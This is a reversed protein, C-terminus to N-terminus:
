RPMEQLTDLFRDVEGGSNYHVLSVRVGGTKESLGLARFLRPCYVHGDKVIIREKALHRSVKAPELGKINFCLTPTRLAAHDPDTFGQVEIFPLARLRRLLYGTLSREYQRVAHMGRRMDGRRGVDEEPPLPLHRSRRGLEEIYGVAANLGAIGEYNQTGLEVKDPARDPIFSERFTPLSDLVERKGWLFGIHPGFAKYGSCVLFDCDFFQVDLPGHAAFAVADAFLYGKRAHIREAIPILDVITGVANSAKTVAVLRTRDTLIKDLREIDLRAGEKEVPWFKVKIDRAELALWPAINAEHDLETVIVEDGPKLVEAFALAVSRILATANAGFAIEEPHRANVFVALSERAQRVLEDVEESLLFRGGRQVNRRTLHDGVAEVVTQPVQTGAANDFYLDSSDTLAPFFGRVFDLPFDL